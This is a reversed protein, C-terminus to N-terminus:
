SRYGRKRKKEWIIWAAALGAGLLSLLRGAGAGPVRYQMTIHNEGQVLPIQMLAGEFAEIQTKQGNVYASWGQSYPITLVLSQGPEGETTCIVEGPGIEMSKVAAAKERIREASEALADLDLAEFQAARLNPEGQTELTIRVTNEGQTGKDPVPIYFVSPSLWDGYGYGWDKSVTIRGEMPNEWPLNGYLCFRGQPVQLTWTTM